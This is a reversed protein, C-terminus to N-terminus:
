LIPWQNAVTIAGNKKFCTNIGSWNYPQSWWVNNTREFACLPFIRRFFRDVIGFFFYFEIRQFLSFLSNLKKGTNEESSFVEKSIWTPFSIRNVTLSSFKWFWIQVFFRLITFDIFIAQKKIKCESHVFCFFFLFSLTLVFRTFHLQNPRFRQTICVFLSSTFRIKMRILWKWM